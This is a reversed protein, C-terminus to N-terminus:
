GERRAKPAGRERATSRQDNEYLPSWGDGDVRMWPPHKAIHKVTMVPCQCTRSAMGCVGDNRCNLREKANHHGMVVLDVDYMRAFRPLEQGVIGRVLHRQFRVGNVKPATQELLRRPDGAHRSQFSSAADSDLPREDIHVILLQSGLQQALSAADDLAALSSETFDVPCM